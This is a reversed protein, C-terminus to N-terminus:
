GIVLRPYELTGDNVNEVPDVSKLSTNGRCKYGCIACISTISNDNTSLVEYEHYDIIKYQQNAM